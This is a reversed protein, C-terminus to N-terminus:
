TITLIPVCIIRDTERGCVLCPWFLPLLWSMLFFFATFLFICSYIFPILSCIIAWRIIVTIKVDCLTEERETEGNRNALVFPSVQSCLGVRFIESLFVLIEFVAASSMSRYRMSGNSSCRILRVLTSRYVKYVFSSRNDGYSRGQFFVFFCFDLVNEFFRCISHYCSSLFFPVCFIM